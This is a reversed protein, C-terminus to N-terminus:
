PNVHAETSPYCCLVEAGDGCHERATTQMEDVFRHSSILVADIGEEALAQPARVPLGCLRTGQKAPDGDVVFRAAGLDILAGLEATHVGAGYIAIRRGAHSWDALTDGVRRDISELLEQERRAYDLVAHRVQERDDAFTEADPVGWAALDSGAVFRLGHDRVRDDPRMSGVGHNALLRGMSGPTFHCVHELGFHSTLSLEPYLSNPVELMLLGGPRLMRVVEAMAEDPRPLHELVSILSIVDFFGDEFLADGLYGAHIEFRADMCFGEDGCPDLGTFSWGSPAGDAMASLFGGQGCGVDLMRGPGREASAHELFPRYFQARDAFLKPYYSGKSSDRFTRGSASADEAYYRELAEESPRPSNFVFGCHDCQTVVVRPRGLSEIALPRGRYLESGERSGCLGCPVRVARHDNDQSM